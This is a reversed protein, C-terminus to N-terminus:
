AFDRLAHENRAANHDLFAFVGFGFGLSRMGHVRRAKNECSHPFKAAASMRRHDKAVAERGVKEAKLLAGVIPGVELAERGPGRGRAEQPLQAVKVSQCSLGAEGIASVPFVGSCASHDKAGALLRLARPPM